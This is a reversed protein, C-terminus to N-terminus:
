GIKDLIEHADLSTLTEKIKEWDKGFKVSFFTRMMERENNSVRANKDAEILGYPYGIFVPDKCNASLLSVAHNLHNKQEKYVEYRFIHKSREHMKVFSMDAKHDKSSIDVVPHYFWKGKVGYKNLANTVSNGKDTMLSTTKSLGSVIVKNKSANEFLEEMYKNENTFTCQLSGDLVILDNEVLLNALVSALKIESFRRVLNAVNSINARTVGQRITEDFSSVLLDDKIPIIKENLSILETKYFLEDKLDQASTFSYFEKKGSKVRKKGEYISYYIKILNLSFNSSKIIEANGGDIFAIKNKSNSKQITKFGRKDLGHSKYHNDSFKVFKDHMEITNDKVLDVIRDFMDEM